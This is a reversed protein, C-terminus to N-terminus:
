GYVGLIDIISQKKIGTTHKLVMRGNESIDFEVQLKKLDMDKDNANLLAEQNIYSLQVSRQHIKDGFTVPTFPLTLKRPPM